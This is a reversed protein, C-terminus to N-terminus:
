TEAWEDFTTVPVVAIPEGHGHVSRVGADATSYRQDSYLTLYGARDSLARRVPYVALQNSAAAARLKEVSDPAPEFALVCGGGLEALQRAAALAHIGVHAGIDAYVDGARLEQHLHRVFAPEYVGTYYLLAQLNDRLDLDLELGLRRAHVFPEETSWR